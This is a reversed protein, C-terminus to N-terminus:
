DDVLVVLIEATPSERAMASKSPASKAPLGLPLQKAAVAGNAPPLNMRVAPKGRNFITRRASNIM